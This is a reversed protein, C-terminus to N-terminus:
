GPGIRGEWGLVLWLGGSIGSGGTKLIFGDWTLCETLRGGGRGSAQNEMGCEVKGMVEALLGM